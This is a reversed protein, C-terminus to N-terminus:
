NHFHTRLEGPRCGWCRFSPRIVEFIDTDTKIDFKSEQHGALQLTNKM